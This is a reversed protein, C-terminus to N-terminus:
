PNAVMLGASCATVYLGIPAPNWDQFYSLSLNGTSSMVIKQARGAMCKKTSIVYSNGPAANSISGINKGRSTKGLMHKHGVPHAFDLDGSGSTSYSSTELKSQEPWLFVVSCQKGAYDAPIDFHFYTSNESNVSAFYQSGYKVGNKAIPIILHPTQYAGTLSTQCVKKASMTPTTSSPAPPAMSSASIVASAMFPIPTSSMADSTTPVTTVLSPSLVGSASSVSASPTSKASQSSPSLQSSMTSTVAVVPMTSVGSGSTVSTSMATCKKSTSGCKTITQYITRWETSNEPQMSTMAAAPTTDFYSSPCSGPHAPNCCGPISTTVPGAPITDFYSSPCSGPHAPNCGGPISTTVPGAAITDFYSSPCSGPHAPNCGGPISSTTVPAAPTTDFYSIPCSGPHAPNCGGPIGTISSFGASSTSTMAQDSKSSISGTDGGPVCKGNTNLMVEICGDQGMPKTLYVNYGGHDGTPCAEFQHKQYVQLDGSDNM